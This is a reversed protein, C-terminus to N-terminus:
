VKPWSLRTNKQSTRDHGDFCDYMKTSQKLDAICEKYIKKLEDHYEQENAHEELHKMGMTLIELIGDFSDEHMRIKVMCGM